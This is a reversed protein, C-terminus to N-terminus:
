SIKWDAGGLDEGFPSVNEFFSTKQTGEGESLTLTLGALDYIDYV